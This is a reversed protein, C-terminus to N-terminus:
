IGSLWELCLVLTAPHSTEASKPRIGPKGPGARTECVLVKVATAGPGGLEFQQLSPQRTAARWGHARARLNANMKRVSKFVLDPFLLMFVVPNDQKPGIFFFM